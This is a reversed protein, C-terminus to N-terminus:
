HLAIIESSLYKKKKIETLFLLNNIISAMM